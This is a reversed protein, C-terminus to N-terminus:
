NLHSFFHILESCLFILIRNKRIIINFWLIIKQYIILIHFVIRYKIYIKWNLYFFVKLLVHLFFDYKKM